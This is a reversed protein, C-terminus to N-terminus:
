VTVTFFVPPELRSILAAGDNVPALAESKATAVPVVHVLPAATAGFAVHTILTVNVGGVPAPPLRAATRLMASLTVPLGCGTVNVGPDFAVIATATPLTPPKVPATVSEHEPVIGCPVQLAGDLGTVAGPDPFTVIVVCDDKTGGIDVLFGGTEICCTV